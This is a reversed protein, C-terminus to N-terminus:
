DPDVQNGQSRLERIAEPFTMFTCNTRSKTPPPNSYDKITPSRGGGAARLTFSPVNCICDGCRCISQNPKFNHSAGIVDSPEESGRMPWLATGSGMAESARRQGVGRRAGEDAAIFDQGGCHSRSGAGLIGTAEAANMHENRHLKQNTFIEDQNQVQTRM